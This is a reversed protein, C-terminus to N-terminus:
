TRDREGLLIQQISWALAMVGIMGMALADGLGPSFFVNGSLEQGILIPVLNIMGSTLAYATAYAGFSNAFLLVLTGFLPRRVTPWGVRLWFQGRGAGLNAAAEGYRSLADLVPVLVLVGLPIQFYLYTVALGGLNFLTLGHRYPNFGVTKELLVTVLGVPGITATFAFALPIGAFNSAVGSFTTILSRLWGPAHHGSILWALGLGALGGIIATGLSLAISTRYADLYQPQLLSRYNTWTWQGTLGHLSGWLLSIAPIVLFLAVFGGLPVLWVSSSGHLRMRRPPNDTLSIPQERVEMMVGWDGASGM